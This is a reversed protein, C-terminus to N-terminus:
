FEKFKDVIAARVWTAKRWINVKGYLPNAELATRRVMSTIQVVNQTRFYLSPQRLFDRADKDGSALGGKHHTQGAGHNLPTERDDRHAPRSATSACPTRLAPSQVPAASFPEPGKKNRGDHRRCRSRVAWPTHDRRPPGRWPHSSSTATGALAAASVTLGRLPPASLM